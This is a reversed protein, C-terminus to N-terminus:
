SRIDKSHLGTFVPVTKQRINGERIPRRCNDGMRCTVKQRHMGICDTQLILKKICHM